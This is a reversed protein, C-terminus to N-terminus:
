GEWDEVTLGTVRTFETVNHTVLTLGRAKAQGALKDQADGVIRKRLIGASERLWMKVVGGRSNLVHVSISFSNDHIQYEQGEAYPEEGERSDQDDCELLQPRM